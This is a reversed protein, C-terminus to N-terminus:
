KKVTGWDFKYLFLNHNCTDPRWFLKKAYKNTVARFDDANIMFSNFWKSDPGRRRIFYSMRGDMIMYDPHLQRFADELSTNPRNILFKLNTWSHFPNNQFYFWFSDVGLIVDDPKIEKQMMAANNELELDCKENYYNIKDSLNNSFSYLLYFAILCTCILGVRQSTIPLSILRRYFLAAGLAILPLGMGCNFDYFNPMIGAILLLSGFSFIINFGNEKRIFILALLVEAFIVLLARDQDKLLVFIEGLATGMQQFDLSLLPPTRSDGITMTALEALVAQYPEIALCYYTGAGVLVGLIFIWSNKKIFAQLKFRQIYLLGILPLYLIVRPHFDIGLTVIIGTLFDLWPNNNSNKLFIYIALLGLTAAIIDARAIHSSYTFNNSFGLLLMALIGTLPDKIHSGISFILFLTVAIFLIHIIRITFLNIEGSLQPIFSYIYYPLTSFTKESDKVLSFAGTELSGLPHGNILFSQVRSGMVADDPFTMPYFSISLLHFILLILFLAIFIKKSHQNILTIASM